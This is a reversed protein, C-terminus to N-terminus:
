YQVLSRISDLSLEQVPKAFVFLAITGATLLVLSLQIGWTDEVLEIEQDSDRFYMAVIPRLYYYVSVLSAIVGVIALWLYHESNVADRFIMFKGLFGATGPIGALSLLAVTLCFAVFPQRKGLGHLDSLEERDVEGRSVMALATFAGLTMLLYAALYFLAAAGFDEGIRSQFSLVVPVLLYGSHAIGSYALMRKVNTQNLAALNGLIMTVVAVAALVRSLNSDALNAAMMVRLLAAFSCIKVAVAMWGASIAPSGQYVDPVWSHFPVAGVKFAFGILILLIGANLLVPDSPGSRLAALSIDGTAIYVFAMGFALFGSSFAGMVFYKMAGESGLKWKRFFGALVYVSLSLTEIALFMSMLNTAQCLLVMAAGGMFTLGHFEGLHQGQGALYGGAALTTCLLAVLILLALFGGFSDLGLAGSFTFQAPGGGLLGGSIFLSALALLSGSVGILVLHSKSSRPDDAGESDVVFLDTILVALGTLLLLAAPLISKYDAVTLSFDM